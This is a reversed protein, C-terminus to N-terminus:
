ENRLTSIATAVIVAYYFIALCLWQSTSADLAKIIPATLVLKWYEIIL